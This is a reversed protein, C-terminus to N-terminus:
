EQSLRLCEDCILALSQKGSYRAIPVFRGEEGSIDSEKPYGCYTQVADNKDRSGPVMIHWRPDMAARVYEQM